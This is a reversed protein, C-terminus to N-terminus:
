SRSAPTLSARAAEPGGPCRWWRALIYLASPCCLSASCSWISVSVNLFRTSGGSWGSMAVLVEVRCSEAFDTLCRRACGLLAWFHRFCCLFQGQWPNQLIRCFRHPAETRLRPTGLLAWLLVSVSGAVSKALNQLIQPPGGHAAWSAWFQGFCCLFRGQWLNQLIRCFRHPAETRLRPTGWLSWFPM